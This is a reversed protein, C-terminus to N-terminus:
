RGYRWNRGNWTSYAYHFSHYDNSRTFHQTLQLLWEGWLSYIIFAVTMGYVVSDISISNGTAVSIVKGAEKLMAGQTFIFFLIVFITYFLAMKSGYRDEVIEGVTIRESRRYWPVILWFFPTIVM